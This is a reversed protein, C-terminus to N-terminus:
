RNPGATLKKPLNSCFKVNGHLEDRMGALIEAAGLLWTTLRRAAPMCGDTLSSKYPVDNQEQMELCDRTRGCVSDDKALISEAVGVVGTM